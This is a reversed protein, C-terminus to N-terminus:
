RSPSLSHNYGALWLQIAKEGPENLVPPLGQTHPNLLPVAAIALNYIAYRSGGGGM